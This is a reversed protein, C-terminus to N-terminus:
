LAVDRAEHFPRSADGSTAARPYVEPRNPREDLLPWRASLVVPESRFAAETRERPAPRDWRVTVNNCPHALDRPPSTKGQHGIEALSNIYSSEAQMPAILHAYKREIGAARMIARASVTLSLSRKMDIRLIM